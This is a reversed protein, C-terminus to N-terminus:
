KKQLIIKNKEGIYNNKKIGKIKLADKISINAYEWTLGGAIKRRGKCVSSIHGASTPFGNLTTYEAAKTASVFVEGTEICRVPIGKVKIEVEPVNNPNFEDRRFWRLGGCFNRFNRVVLSVNGYGARKADALSKFEKVIKNTKPNVGVVAMPLNSLDKPRSTDLPFFEPVQFNALEEEYNITSNKTQVLYDRIFNIIPEKIKFVYCETDGAWREKQRMGKKLIRLDHYENFKRHIKNELVYADIENVKIYYFIKKLNYAYREELTRTTVGVKLSHIGFVEVEMVGLFTPKGQQGKDLLKLLRHSAYGQHEKGCLPCSYESRALYRFSVDKQKGHIECDIIVKVSKSKVDYYTDLM